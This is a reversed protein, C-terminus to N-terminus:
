DTEIVIFLVSHFLNSGCILIDWLYTKYQNYCNFDILVYNTLM